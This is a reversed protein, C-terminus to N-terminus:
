KNRTKQLEEGLERAADMIKPMIATMIKQEMMLSEQALKPMKEAFAKGATSKYFAILGQVEEETFTKIYIEAVPGKLKDWSMEAKVINTIKVFYKDLLPKEAETVGMQAAMGEYMQDLQGYISGFTKEAGSVALLKDVSALSATQAFANLSLALALCAVIIKKM